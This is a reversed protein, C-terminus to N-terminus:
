RRRADDGREYLMHSMRNREASRVPRREVFDIEVFHESVVKAGAADELAGTIRRAAADIVDGTSSYAYRGDVSFAIWRPQASLDVTARAAPPYVSADFVHLRNQVGDAVWLERQDPTFAIGHSPCEYDAAARPDYGDAAVRDLILGTQLDGVEFGVLGDINAFALTGAANLAFACLSASFPGVEKVVAHRTTDSISLTPSEWAALYAHKGDRGYVTDRPWGTVAIAARLDGNAADIVYWKPSGFAPAYITQGDPSVALRDCCRSEYRREWVIRETRLDIAALRSTTSIFLRGARVSAATGRVVEADGGGGASWVPIRRVLRHNRAIDFVLIRVSRDPDVHDSGPLAVYLYREEPQARAEFPLVAGVTAGLVLAVVALM